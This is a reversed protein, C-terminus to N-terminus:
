SVQSEMKRGCTHRAKVNLAWHPGVGLGRSRSDGGGEANQRHAQGWGRGEQLDRGLPWAERLGESAWAWGRQPRIERGLVHYM